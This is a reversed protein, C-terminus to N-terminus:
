DSDNLRKLYQDKEKAIVDYTVLPNDDIIGQKYKEQLIKLKGLGKNLEELVQKLDQKGTVRKLNYINEYLTKYIKDMEELPLDLKLIDDMDSRYQRNIKSDIIKRVVDYSLLWM